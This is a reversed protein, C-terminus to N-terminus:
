VVDISYGYKHSYKNERETIGMTTAGIKVQGEKFDSEALYLRGSSDRTELWRHLSPYPINASVDDDEIAILIQSSFFRHRYSEDSELDRIAYAINLLYEKDQDHYIAICLNKLLQRMDQYLDINPYSRGKTYVSKYKKYVDLSM